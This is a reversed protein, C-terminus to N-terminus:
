DDLKPELKNFCALLEDEKKQRTELKSAPKRDVDILHLSYEVCLDDSHQYVGPGSASQKTAQVNHTHRQFSLRVFFSVDCMSLSLLWNQLLYVCEDIELKEIVLLAQSRHERLVSEEPASSTVLKQFQSVVDCLCLVNSHRRPVKVPSAALLAHPFSGLYGRSEEDVLDQVYSTSGNCLKLLRHYVAIAGDADLIDLKQLTVLKMLLDEQSLIGAVMDVLCNNIDETQSDSLLFLAAELERRNAILARGNWSRFNHRPDKILCALAYHIREKNGSFLDMPDYLPISLNPSKSAGVITHRTYQLKFVHRVLPSFARYGAKPKIELVLAQKQQFTQPLLRYDPLLTGFLLYQPLSSNCSNWDKKRNIPIKGGNVTKTYLDRIFEWSLPVTVAGDIYPSLFEFTEPLIEHSCPTKSSGTNIAASFNSTLAFSSSRLLAKSIRLLKKRNNNEHGEYLFLAHKGGEGHYSWEKADM